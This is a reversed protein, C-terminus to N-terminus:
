TVWVHSGNSNWPQKPIFLTKQRWLPSCAFVVCDLNGGGKPKNICCHCWGKPNEHWIEKIMWWCVTYVWLMENRQIAIDEYLAVAGLKSSIFSGGGGYGPSDVAFGGTLGGTLGPYTWVVAYGRWGPNWVIGRCPATAGAEWCVTMMTDVGDKPVLGTVVIQWSHLRWTMVEVEIVDPTNVHDKDPAHIKNPQQIPQQRKGKQQWSVFSTLCLHGFQLMVRPLYLLHQNHTLLFYYERHCNNLLSIIKDVCLCLHKWNELNEKSKREVRSKRKDHNSKRVCKKKITKIGLLLIVWALHHDIRSSWCIRLLM